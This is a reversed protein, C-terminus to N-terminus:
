INKGGFISKICKIIFEALLSLINQKQEATIEETESIAKAEEALREYEEKTKEEAAIREAEAKAKEEAAIREAEAKAEEEKKADSIMTTTFLAQGKLDIDGVFAKVIYDGDPLIPSLIKVCFGHYGNGIGANALDERYLDAVFHNKYEKVMVDNKYFRTTIMLKTDDVSNYAWGTLTYDKASDIWGIIEEKPKEVIAIGLTNLIGHAIAVGMAKQEAKTDVIAIDTANDIFAVEVIVAPPVTERIFAYYDKGQTNKKIKAGRSNQGLKCIQTLINEALVKSTGGGFHYYIEAGDGGGANHHIDVALDPAYNNCEKVEDNVPDNEDQSRSLLTSVGHIQLEEACAKAISLNLDKEKLGNGVAGSDSGGHGVGIFVKKAM